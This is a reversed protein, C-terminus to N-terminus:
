GVEGLQFFEFGQLRACEGGAGEVESGALDDDDAGECGLLSPAAVGAVLCGVEEEVM